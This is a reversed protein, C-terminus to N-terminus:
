PTSGCSGGRCFFSYKEGPTHYVAPFPEEGPAPEARGEAGGAEAAGEARGLWAAVGGGCERVDRCGIRELEGTVLARTQTLEFGLEPCRHLARRLRLLQPALEQARERVDRM